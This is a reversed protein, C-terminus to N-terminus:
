YHYGYQQSNKFKFGNLVVYPNPFKKNVVIDKLKDLMTKPTYDSRVVFITADAIDHLHFTDAVPAIPPADLIIMDYQRRAEDILRRLRSSMLLESPNSPKTGCYIVDLNKNLEGKSTIKLRTLNSSSLYDSIGFEPKEKIKQYELQKPQRLDLEILLVKKDGLAQIMALNLAVYSKGEGSVSSTVLWTKLSDGPSVFSVNARLARFMETSLSTGNEKIALQRSRSGHPLIGLIQVKVKNTIDREELVKDNLSNFLLVLASPFALGLFGGVLLILPPKPSIPDSANAPEILKGNDTTVAMSILTEERKQLLYTYIDEKISKMRQIDLLDRERKPLSQLRDTLSSKIEASADREITLDKKISHINDIINERLNALQRNIQITTEHKPGYTNTNRRSLQENFKDIQSALMLNNISLNTPVYEFDDKNKSLFDEIGSLIELETNNKVLDKNVSMVENLLLNGESSLETINHSQRYTQAQQEISSLETVVLNIRENILNLSNEFAVTRDKKSEENYAELLESLISEARQPVQDRISLSVVSSNEDIISVELAECLNLAKLKPTMATVRYKKGLTSFNNRALTVKGIPLALEQGFEGRYEEKEMKLTYQGHEGPMIECELVQFEDAPLWNVVDIPHNEYLDVPKWGSIDVYQNAIGLKNVVQEMLPSSTLINVENGISNDAKHMRIDSFIGEEPVQGANKVGKILIRTQAEYQFPTIQLYFYAAGVTLPLLILYLWWYKLAKKFVHILNVKDENM